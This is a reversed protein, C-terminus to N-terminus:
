IKGGYFLDIQASVARREAEERRAETHAAIIKAASGHQLLWEYPDPLTGGDHAVYLREAWEAVHPPLADFDHHTM